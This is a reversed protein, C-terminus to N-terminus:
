SVHTDSSLRQHFAEVEMLEVVDVRRAALVVRALAAHVALLRFHRAQQEAGAVAVHAGELAHTEGAAVHGHTHSQIYMYM